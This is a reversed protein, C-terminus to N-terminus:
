QSFSVDCSECEHPLKVAHESDIHAKLNSELPFSVTCFKCQFIEETKPKPSFKKMNNKEPLGMVCGVIEDLKKGKHVLSDYQNSGKEFSFEENGINSKEPQNTNLITMLKGEHVSKSKTSFEENFINHKDSQNLLPNTFVLGDHVLKSHRTLYSKKSFCENCSNCKYPKEREHVSSIPAVM